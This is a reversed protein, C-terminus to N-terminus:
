GRVGTEGLVNSQKQRLTIDRFTLCTGAKSFRKILPASPRLIQRFAERTKWISFTAGNRQRQGGRKEAGPRQSTKTVAWNLFGCPKLHKGPTNRSGRRENLGQPCWRLRITYPEFSEWSASWNATLTSSHTNIEALTPKRYLEINLGGDDKIHVACVSFSSATEMSM